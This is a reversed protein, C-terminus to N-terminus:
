VYMSSRGTRGVVQSLSNEREREGGGGGGDGKSNQILYASVAETKKELM